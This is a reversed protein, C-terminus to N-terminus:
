NPASTAAAPTEEAPAEGDLCAPQQPALWCSEAGTIQDWLARPVNIYDDTWGPGEPAELVRWDDNILPLAALTAPDRAIIMVSAASGGYLMAGPLEFAYSLRFLTPANLDRAVRAAESVLALNRNSLHLIVVGRESTKSLYLAIAERTLLHAPIADSSFADVVIVDYAGGPANAIQLRADGLVVHANPQCQPVFTFDGGPEVALRVVAPDIEYITLQDDPEMLCATSGTGLGILALHSRERMGLAGTIAEGLATRPHYYTLPQRSRTPDDIQAGHLTTGHLLVRLPPIESDSLEYVRTRLVGFFTREQTIIRGGSVDDFFIISFAVLVGAAMVIPRGRNIFIALGCFIVGIATLLEDDLQERLLMLMILVVFTPLAAGHAFDAVRREDRRRQITAHVAFMLMVLSSATLLAGWPAVIRMRTEGDVISGLFISDVNLACYIVLGAHAAALALFGYRLPAPRAEDGWGAAVMAAAAGLAGAVIAGVHAPVNVASLNMLALALGVVGLMVAAAFSADALRPMDSGTRPRFLCAAALALPYEYVNNFIVPAALAASAGGLVGGLSVFLYFETLREASPRSRSLALHCVLASFFFGALIGTISGLWNGSAYYSMVLLALAAPHILLTARDIKESGKMFALVFTALYLALPVVWLMPASAVDTSIHLTVGLSLASPVAAAAMWYGRERWRDKGPTTTAAEAEPAPAPAAVKPAGEGHATVAMAGALLILALVGVYGATWAASQAQAGLMPEIVVPYALLGIFSGLNSAAYLYYPDHADARGTRAYWAQLLPATASAAAFPAGVSLALVGLLWLSPQEVNPPGLLDSVQVPLVLWAAGLVLAHAIAQVRLDKVRALLHAYLYGVLLAAQFFAMSTNWVQPSGGLLPTVMRAFLPQLVFILAASSFLALAFVPAAARRALAQM